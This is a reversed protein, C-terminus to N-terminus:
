RTLAGRHQIANAYTLASRPTLTPYHITNICLLLAPNLQTIHLNLNDSEVSRRSYPSHFSVVPILLSAALEWLEFLLHSVQPSVAHSVVPTLLSPALEWLEFM